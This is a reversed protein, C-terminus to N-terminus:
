DALLIRAVHADDWPYNEAELPEGDDNVIESSEFLYIRSCKRGDPMVASEAWEEAFGHDQSGDLLRSTPEANGTAEVLSPDISETSNAFSPEKVEVTRINSM